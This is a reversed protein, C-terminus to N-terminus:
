TLRNGGFKASFLIKKRAAGEKAGKGMFGAWREGGEGLSPRAVPISKAKNFPQKWAKPGGGPPAARGRRDPRKAGFARRPRRGGGAAGTAMVAQGMFDIGTAQHPNKLHFSLWQTAEKKLETSIRCSMPSLQNGRAQPRPPAPAPNSKPPRRPYIKPLLFPPAIHRCSFM